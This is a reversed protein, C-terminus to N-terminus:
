QRWQYQERRKAINGIFRYKCYPTTKVRPIKKNFGVHLSEFVKSNVNEQKEIEFQSQDDDDGKKSM